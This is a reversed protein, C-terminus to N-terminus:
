LIARHVRIQNLPHGSFDIPRRLLDDRQGHVEDPNRRHIGGALFVLGARSEQAIEHRTVAVVDLEDRRVSTGLVRACVRPQVHDSRPAAGASSRQDMQVAVDVDNGGSVPPGHVGEGADDAVAPNEPATHAVHFGADSGGDKRAPSRDRRRAYGPV